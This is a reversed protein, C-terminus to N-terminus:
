GNEAVMGAQLTDDNYERVMGDVFLLDYFVGFLFLGCTSVYIFAEPVQRLYLRHWGLLAGVALWTRARAPKALESSAIRDDQPNRFQECTRSVNLSSFPRASSRKIESLRGRFGSSPPLPPPRGTLQEM